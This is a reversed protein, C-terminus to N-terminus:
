RNRGFQERSRVSLVPVPSHRFIKESNSGHLTGIFNSRGKTAIVVLDVKETEIAELITKSPIGVRFIIKMYAKDPLFHEEIMEQIRQHRETKVREIYSEINMEEPLHPNVTKVADIDKSNIVNIILIETKLGRVIALTEEVIMKSHDSLDVCVMVRNIKKM